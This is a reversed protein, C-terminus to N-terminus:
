LLLWVLPQADVELVNAHLLPIQKLVVRLEVDVEVAETEMEVEVEAIVVQEKVLVENKSTEEARVFDVKWSLTFLVECVGSM